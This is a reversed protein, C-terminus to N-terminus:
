GLRAPMGAQSAAERVRGRMEEEYAARCGADFLVRRYLELLEPRRARLLRQVSPWVRPRPNLADTWIQDVGTEAALNFLGRLAQPTDSIGPLLPGFMVTTRLGAAKTQKLVDARAAVTSAGPEWLAAEAEDPTTITVGLNVPRGAFTDLDRQM